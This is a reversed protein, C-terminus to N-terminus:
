PSQFTLLSGLLLRIALLPHAEFLRMQKAVHGVGVRMSSRWCSAPSSPWFVPLTGKASKVTIKAADTVDM